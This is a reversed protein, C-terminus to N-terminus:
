RLGTLNIGGLDIPRPLGRGIVSRPDGLEGGRLNDTEPRAPRVLDEVPKM